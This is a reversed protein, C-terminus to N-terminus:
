LTERDQFPSLVRMIRIVNQADVVRYYIRHGEVPRERVADHDGEPWRDPHTKLDRVAKVIAAYRRHARTGSGPQMLWRRVSALDARAQESIDLRYAM